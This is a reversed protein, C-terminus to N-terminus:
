ASARVRTARVRSSLVLLALRLPQDAVTHVQRVAEDVLRARHRVSLSAVFPALHAMGLRWAVLQSAPLVGADVHVVDTTVGVLGAETAMAHVAHPDSVRPEGREKLETHWGPV